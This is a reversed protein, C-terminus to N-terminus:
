RLCGASMVYLNNRFTFYLTEHYVYNNLNYSVFIHLINTIRLHCFLTNKLFIFSFICIEINYFMNRMFM